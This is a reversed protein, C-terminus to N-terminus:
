SRDESGPDTKLSPSSTERVGLSNSRRRARMRRFPATALRRSSRWSTQPCRAATTLRVTSVWIESSPPLQLLFGGIGAMDEGDVLGSVTEASLLQNEQCGESM